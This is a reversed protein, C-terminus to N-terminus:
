RCDENDGDPDGAELVCVDRNYQYVVGNVEAALCCSQTPSEDTQYSCSSYADLWSTFQVSASVNDRELENCKSPRVPDYCVEDPSWCWGRAPDFEMGEPCWANSQSCVELQGGGASDDVNLVTGESFCEPEGSSDNIAVCASSSNCFASVYESTGDSDWDRPSDDCARGVVVPDVPHKVDGCFMAVGPRLFLGSSYVGPGGFHANSLSSLSGAFLYHNSGQSSLNDFGSVPAVQVDVPAESNLGVVEPYGSEAFHANLSSSLTLIEVDGMSGQLSRLGRGRCCLSYSYVDASPLAGHANGDSSIEFLEVDSCSSSISCSHLFSNEEYPVGLAFGAFVAAAVTLFIIRSNM